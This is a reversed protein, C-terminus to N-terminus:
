RPRPNGGALPGAFIPVCLLTLGYVGVLGAAQMMPLPWTLAYGLVNWPFGTLVHGRLLGEWGWNRARRLQLIQRVGIQRIVGFLSSMSGVTQASM